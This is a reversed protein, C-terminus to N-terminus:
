GLLEISSRDPGFKVVCWPRGPPLSASFAIGRRKFHGMVQGGKIWTEGFEGPKFSGGVRAQGPNFTKIQGDTVVAIPQPNDFCWAGKPAYSAHGRHFRRVEFGGRKGSPHDIARMRVSEITRRLEDGIIKRKAFDRAQGALVGRIPSEGGLERWVWYTQRWRPASRTPLGALSAAVFSSIDSTAWGARCAASVVTRSTPDYAAILTVFQHRWWVEVARRLAHDGRRAAIEWVIFGCAQFLEGGYNPSNAEWIMHGTTGDNQDRYFRHLWRSAGPAGIAYDGTWAVMAHNSSGGGPYTLRSTPAEAGRKLRQWSNPDYYLPRGDTGRVGKDALWARRVHRLEDWAPHGGGLELLQDSRGPPLNDAKLTPPAGASPSRSSPGAGLALVMVVVSVLKM